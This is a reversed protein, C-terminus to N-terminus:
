NTFWLQVKWAGGEKAFRARTPDKVDSPGSFVLAKGGDIRIEGIPPSLDEILDGSMVTGFGNACSRDRGQAYTEFQGRAQETMLVCARKGDADGMARGFRAILAKLEREDPGGQAAASTRGGGGADDDSDSGGCAAVGGLLMASVAVAVARPWLDTGRVIM